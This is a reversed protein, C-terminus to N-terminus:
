GHSLLKTMLSMLVMLLGSLTGLVAGALLLRRPLPWRGQSTPALASQWGGRWVVLAFGALLLLVGGAAMAMLGAEVLFRM